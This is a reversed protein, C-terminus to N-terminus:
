SEEVGRARLAKRLATRGRRLHTKVTNVSIGRIAGIERYTRGDGYYLTLAIRAEVPVTALSAQLLTDRERKALSRDPV